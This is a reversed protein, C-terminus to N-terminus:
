VHSQPQMYGGMGGLSMLFEGVRFVMGPIITHISRKRPELKNFSLPDMSFSRGCNQLIIGTGDMVEGSGFPM